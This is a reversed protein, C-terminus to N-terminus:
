LMMRISHFVEIGRSRWWAEGRVFGRQGRRQPLTAVVLAAGRLSVPEGRLVVFGIWRLTM